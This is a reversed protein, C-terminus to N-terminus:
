LAGGADSRSWARVFAERALRRRSRVTNVPVGLLQAADSLSCGEIDVLVLVDRLKTSLTGLVRRVEIVRQSDAVLDEPTALPDPQTTQKVVWRKARRLRHWRRYQCVVRVAIGRLWARPSDITARMLRRDAIVFVRQVIEEVDADDVGLSIVLRYIADFHAQYLAGWAQAREAASLRSWVGMPRTVSESM